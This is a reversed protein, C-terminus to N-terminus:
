HIADGKNGSARGALIGIRSFWLLTCKPRCPSFEDCKVNFKKLVLQCDTLKEPSSTAPPRSGLVNGQAKV